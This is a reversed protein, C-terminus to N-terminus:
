ERENKLYAEKGGDQIPSHYHTYGVHDENLSQCSHWSSTSIDGPSLTTENHTWADRERLEREM